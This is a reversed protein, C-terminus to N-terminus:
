RFLESFLDPQRFDDRRRKSRGTPFSDPGPGDDGANRGRPLLDFLKQFDFGPSRGGCQGILRHATGASREDGALRATAEVEELLPCYCSHGPPAPRHPHLISALRIRYDAGPRNGPGDFAAAMKRVLASALRYFTNSHRGETCAYLALACDLAGGPDAAIPDPQLLLGAVANLCSHVSLFGAGSSRKVSENWAATRIMWECDLWTVSPGDAIVLSEMRRLDSLRRWRSAFLLRVFYGALPSPADASAAPDNELLARGAHMVWRFSTFDASPELLRPRAPGDTLLPEMEEWLTAPVPNKKATEVASAFLASALRRRLDADHPDIARARRLSTLAGAFAKRSVAADASRLLLDKNEPFKKALACM